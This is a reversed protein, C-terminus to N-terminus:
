GPLNVVFEQAGLCTWANANANQGRLEPAHDCWARGTEPTQSLGVNVSRRLALKEKRLSSTVWQTPASIGAIYLAPAVSSFPNPVAWVWDGRDFIIHSM